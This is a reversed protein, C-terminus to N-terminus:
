PISPMLIGIEKINSFLKQFKCAIVNGFDKDQIGHILSVEYLISCPLM